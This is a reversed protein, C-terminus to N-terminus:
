LENREELRAQNAADAQHAQHQLMHLHTRTAVLERALSLIAVAMGRANADGCILTTYAMAAWQDVQQDTAKPMDVRPWPLRDPIKM